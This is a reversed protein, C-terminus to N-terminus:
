NAVLVQFGSSEHTQFFVESEPYCPDPLRVEEGLLISGVCLSVYTCNSVTLNAKLLVYCGQFGPCKPSGAALGGAPAM